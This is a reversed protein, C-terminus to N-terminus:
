AQVSQFGQQYRSTGTPDQMTFQGSIVQQGTNSGGYTTYPASMPNSMMQFFLLAELSLYPFSPFGAQVDGKTPPAQISFTMNGLIPSATFSLNPANSAETSIESAGMDEFM